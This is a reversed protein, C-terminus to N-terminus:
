VRVAVEVQALKAPEIGVNIVLDPSMSDVSKAGTVEFDTGWLGSISVKAITSQYSTPNDLSLSLWKLNIDFELTEIKAGEVEVILNLHRAIFRRGVGDKPEIRLITKGDKPYRDYTAGFCVFGKDASSLLYSTAHRLYDALAFGVDGTFNSMGRHSSGQDPCFGIAAAGDSRVLAWPALMGAFSLRVGPEDLRTYDRRLWNTMAVSNMVTSPSCSMEGFDSMFPNLEHDIAPRPENGYAWWNPAPCKHTLLLQEVSCLAAVNESDEALISIEELSGTSFLRGSWFPLRFRELFRQRYKKWLDFQYLASVGTLAQSSFGERDAYKLLGEILSEALGRYAIRSRLLGSGWQKSLESMSLYFNIAHVYVQARSADMAVSDPWAPCFAAFTNQGPKHFRKLIFNETYENLAHVEGPDYYIRNKEALFTADALSSSIGWPTDFPAEISEGTLNDAPIIGYQYNGETAVQQNIIWNARAQILEDLAPIVLLNCWSEREQMDEVILRFEGTQSARILCGGGFEDTESETEVGDSDISINAPRMGGLEVQFPMDIPVVAGPYPRFVPIGYESLALAVDFGHRGTMPAFLVQYTREEKPEFVISSHGYLWEGWDERDITAKSHIYAIPLGSWGPSARLSLPASHIFEWPSDQGPLILLGPPEGCLKRAAIFSGAGGVHKQLLLRETLMSNMGDDSIPFGETVSNLAFPFGLEGVEISQKSKNKITIDWAIVGPQDPKEYFKGTVKVEPLLTFVYEIEAVNEDVQIEAETNRSVIWHDEPDTRIGLLITGPLYEDSSEDGVPVPSSVFQQNAGMPDNPDSVWLGALRGSSAFSLSMGTVSIETAEFGFEFDDV